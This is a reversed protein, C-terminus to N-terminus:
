YWTEFEHAYHERAVRALDSDPNPSRPKVPFVMKAVKPFHIKLKDNLAIFDTAYLTKFWGGSGQILIFCCVM